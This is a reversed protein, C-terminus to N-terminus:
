RQALLQDVLPKLKTATSGFKDPRGGGARADYNAEGILLGKDYVRLEAFALYMALDWRWNATYEMRYRCQAPPEGDYVRAKIGQAEVDSRLVDVFEAMFVQPNRQICLLDIHSDTVPRVTQTIACASLALAACALVVATKPKKNM